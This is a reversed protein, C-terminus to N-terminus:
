AVKRNRQQEIKDKRIETMHNGCDEMYARIARTSLAQLCLIEIIKVRFNVDAREYRHGATWKYTGDDLPALKALIEDCKVKHRRDHSLQYLLGITIMIWGSNALERNRLARVWDFDTLLEKARHKKGDVTPSSSRASKDKLIAVESKALSSRTTRGAPVDADPEPSPMTSVEEASEEADSVEQLWAPLPIQISGNQDDWSNVLRKLLACHIEVLLECPVTTDYVQLAEVYDDFTFSDLQFVECFVNLTNWTELLPGASEMWITNSHNDEGQGEPPNHDSLFQLDPRHSADRIPAIELDEIPYKIPPPPPPRPSGKSAIAHFHPHSHVFQVLQPEGVGASSKLIGLGPNGSLARQYELFQEQRTKAFDQQAMRSKHSKPKLEPLRSQSSFFSLITGDYEGKKSGLNAKREAFKNEKHLHTPIGTSIRYEHAIKEKVLWPAGNWAERTVTNKIFSRLMQKTFSRRDRVIHEDDVLAEEFPRNTLSVFYRAFAKRELTGDTRILEPFKTKERVVGNLREGNDLIVTVNEGPYFDQKFEKPVTLTDESLHFCLVYCVDFIHDVLVVSILLHKHQYTAQAITSVM